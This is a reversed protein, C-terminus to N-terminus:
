KGQNRYQEAIFSDILKASISIHNTPRGPLNDFRYWGADEIENPKIIIEGSEYEAMFAIMLSDPFPWSQSGFYRLQKIHIGVEEHVERHVADEISEGPEVFGAILAYAGPPFHPSRAMLLHDNKQILVIITPSIRPYFALKCATCIREFAGPKHVTTNGCRGCFQHNKDWNIVAAAKTAMNYWDEGLLDLAKRLPIAELSTPLPHEGLLEACYVDYEEFEALRYLHQFAHKIPTIQAVSLLLTDRGGEPMLLRDNQFIFWYTTKDEAPKIM